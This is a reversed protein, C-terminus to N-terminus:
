VHARGIEKKLDFEMEPATKQSMLPVSHDTTAAIEDLEQQTGFSQSIRNFEIDCNESKKYNRYVIIIGKLGPMKLLLYAYHPIAMFRVFASRGLIANYQSPWDVVEFDLREKRFHGKEGFVVVLAITGLPRVAKGPVIRHFANESRALENFPIGMVKLKDTYIINIGSGGDMFVRSMNYKGIQASRFLM